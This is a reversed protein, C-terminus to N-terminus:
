HHKLHIYSGINVRIITTMNSWWAVILYIFAQASKDMCLFRMCM